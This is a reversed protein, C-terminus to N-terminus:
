GVFSLVGEAKWLHASCSLEEAQEERLREKEQCRHVLEGEM